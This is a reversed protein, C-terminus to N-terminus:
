LKIKRLLFEKNKVQFCAVNKRMRLILILILFIMISVQM